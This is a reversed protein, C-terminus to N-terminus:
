PWPVPTTGDNKMIQGICEMEMTFATAENIGADVAPYPALRVEGTWHPNEPAAPDKTYAFEFPVVMGPGGLSALAADLSDTGVSYKLDLSLKYASGLPDCFTALTDDEEGVLHIGACFCTMDVVTTAPPGVADEGLTIFPDVLRSPRAAM